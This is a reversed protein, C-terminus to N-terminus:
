AGAEKCIRVVDELDRTTSPRPTRIFGRAEGTREEEALAALFLPSKTEFGDRRYYAANM